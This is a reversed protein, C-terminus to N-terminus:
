MGAIAKVVQLLIAFVIAPVFIVAVAMGVLSFSAPVHLAHM